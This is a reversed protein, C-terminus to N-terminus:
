EKGIIELYHNLYWAAKQLDQQENNTKKGARCIYKITNGLCFGRIGSPGLQDEIINIVEYQGATYHYPHNVNEKLDDNNMAM